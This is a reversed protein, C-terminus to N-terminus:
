LYILLHTYERASLDALLASAIRLALEFHRNLVAAASAVLPVGEGNLSFNLLHVWLQELEDKHLVGTHSATELDVYAELVGGISGLHFFDVALLASLPRWGTVPFSEM